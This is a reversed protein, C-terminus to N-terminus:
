QRRKDIEDKLKQALLMAVLEQSEIRMIGGQT